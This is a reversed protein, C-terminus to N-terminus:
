KLEVFEIVKEKEAFDVFNKWLQEDWRFYKFEKYKECLYGMFTEGRKDELHNKLASKAHGKTKWISKGSNLRVTEGEIKIIWGTSHTVRDFNSQFKYLDTQSFTTPM